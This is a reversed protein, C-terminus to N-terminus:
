LIITQKQHIIEDFIPFIFLFHECVCFSFYTGINIKSKVIKELVLEWYFFILLEERIPNFFHFAFGKAKIKKGKIFNLLRMKRNFEYFDKIKNKLSNM